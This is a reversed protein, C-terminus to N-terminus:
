GFNEKTFLRLDKLTFPGPKPLGKQIQLENFSTRPALDEPLSEWTGAPEVLSESLIRVQALAVLPVVMVREFGWGLLYHVWVPVPLIIPNKGSVRGVKKVMEDLTMEDPGTVPVRKNCLRPDTFASVILHAVDEVATPRMKKPTLGVLGFLPFTHLAHSIHDLMHDGKGYIVGAKIITYELGSNAVIEEAMFKSEHYPSGCDPRARLFSMLAVKRIGSKRAAEVVNQTGGIHIRSYTQTGIERNIGACHAVGDCGQFAKELDPASAIDVGDRRSIRVAEIGRSELLRVVNKGVFGSAGTVAIKM